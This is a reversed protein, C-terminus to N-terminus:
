RAEILYRNQISDPTVDNTKVVPGPDPLPEPVIDPLCASKFSKLKPKSLTFLGKIAPWVYADIAPIGFCITGATALAHKLTDDSDKELLLLYKNNITTGGCGHHCDGHGGSASTPLPFVLMIGLIIILYAFAKSVSTM